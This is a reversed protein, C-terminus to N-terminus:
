EVLYLLPYIFLWFVDVLHWYLGGVEVPV